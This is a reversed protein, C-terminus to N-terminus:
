PCRLKPTNEVAKIIRFLRISALFLITLFCTLTGPLPTPFLSVQLQACLILGVLAFAPPSFESVGYDITMRFSKLIALPLLLSGDIYYAYTALKDLMSMAQVQNEETMEKWSVVFENPEVQKVVSKTIMLGKLVHFFQFNKPISCQLDRLLNLIMDCAEHIKNRNGISPILVNYARFKDSVPRNPQEIIANAYAEVQEANGVGYAAEAASSYLEMSLAYQNTWHDVPLCEIGTKLYSIAQGFSALSMAAHGAELNLMAMRLCDTPPAPFDELELDLGQNLLNTVVFINESIEPLTLNDLLVQGVHFQVMKLKEPQVLALAAEQVKDHVWCYYATDDGGDGDGSNTQKKKEIFGEQVCLDLWQAAGTEVSAQSVKDNSTSDSSPRSSNSAYGRELQFSNLVVTLLRASFTCGLCAAWPLIEAWERPLAMMKDMIRTACCQGHGDNQGNGRDHGVDM